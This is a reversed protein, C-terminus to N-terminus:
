GAQKFQAFLEKMRSPTIDNIDLKDLHRLKLYKLFAIEVAKSSNKVAPDMNQTMKNWKQVRTGLQRMAKPCSRVLDGLFNLLDNAFVNFDNVSKVHQTFLDKENKEETKAWILLLSGTRGRKVCSEEILIGMTSRAGNIVGKFEDSLAVFDAKIQNLCSDLETKKIASQALQEHIQREIPVLERVSYKKGQFSYLGVKIGDENHKGDLIGLISRTFRTINEITTANIGISLGDVMQLVKSELTIPAAHISNGSALLTFILSYATKKTNM